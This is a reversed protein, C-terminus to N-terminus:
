LPSQRKSSVLFGDSEGDSPDPLIGRLISKLLSTAGDAISGFMSGIDAFLNDGTFLKVIYDIAKSIM